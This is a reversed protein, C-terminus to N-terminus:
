PPPTRRLHIEGRSNLAVRWFRVGLIEPLTRHYAHSGASIRFSKIRALPVAIVDTEDYRNRRQAAFYITGNVQAILHGTRETNETLRVRVDDLPPPYFWVSLLFFGVCMVLFACAVIRAQLPSWSGPAKLPVVRYRRNLLLLGVTAVGTAVFPFWIAAPVLAIVAVFAAPGIVLPIFRDEDDSFHDSEEECGDDFREAVGEGSGRNAFLEAVFTVVKPLVLITVGGFAVWILIKLNTPNIIVALGSVLYDQLPFLPVGRSTPVGIEHLQATRRVIGILYFGVALVAFIATVNGLTANGLKRGFGLLFRTAEVLAQHERPRAAEAAEPEDPQQTLDVISRRDTPWSPGSVPVADDPRKDKPVVAEASEREDPQEASTTISRTYAGDPRRAVCRGVFGPVIM